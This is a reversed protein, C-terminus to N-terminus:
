KYRAQVLFEKAEEEREEQAQVHKWCPGETFDNTCDGDHEGGKLLERIVGEARLTREALAIAVKYAGVVEYDVAHGITGEVIKRVGLSNYYAQPYSAVEDIAKARLEEATKM